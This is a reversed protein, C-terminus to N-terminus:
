FKFNCEYKLLILKGSAVFRQNIDLVIINNTKRLYVSIRIFSSNNIYYAKATSSDSNNLMLQVNVPIQHTAERVTTDVSAMAVIVDIDEMPTSAPEETQARIPRVDM